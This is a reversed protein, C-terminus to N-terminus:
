VKVTPITLSVMQNPAYGRPSITNIGAKERHSFAGSQHQTGHTQDDLVRHNKKMSNNNYGRGKKRFQAVPADM